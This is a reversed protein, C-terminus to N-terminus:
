RKAFLQTILALGLASEILYLVSSIGHWTAFRDRVVSEMVERPLAQTRLQALIPQIGFYGGLTLLLMTLVLWFPASRLAKLGERVLLYALLYAACAMGLWAVILFQKGAIAGALSRDSLQQFLVPASIYGVAWLAGVWLTAAIAFFYDALRAM